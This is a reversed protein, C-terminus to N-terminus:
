PAYEYAGADFESKRAHGVIDTSPALTSVAANRAPSSATLRLDYQNQAVNYTNFVSTPRNVVLNHDMTVGPVNKSGLIFQGGANNRVTVNLKVPTGVNKVNDVDIWAVRAALPSIM